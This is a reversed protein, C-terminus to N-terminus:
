KFALSNVKVRRNDCPWRPCSWYMQVSHRLGVQWGGSKHTDLQWRVWCLAAVVVVTFLTYRRSAVYILVKRNLWTNSKYCIKILLLRTSPIQLTGQGKLGVIFPDASCLSGTCVYILVEVYILCLFWLTQTRSIGAVNQSRFKYCFPLSHWNAICVFLWLRAINNVISVRSSAM